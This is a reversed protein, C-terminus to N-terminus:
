QVRLQLHVVEEVLDVVGVPVQQVLEVLEEEVAEVVQIVKAQLDVLLIPQAAVVVLVM